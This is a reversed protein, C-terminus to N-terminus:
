LKLEIIVLPLMLSHEGRRVVVGPNSTVMTSAVHGGIYHEFLINTLAEDDDAKNVEGSMMSDVHKSLVSRFDEFTMTKPTDIEGYHTLVHDTVAEYDIQLMRKWM